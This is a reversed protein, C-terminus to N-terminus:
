SWFWWIKLETKSLHETKIPTKKEKQKTQKFVNRRRRGHWACRLKFLGRSPRSRARHGIEIIMHGLFLWPFAINLPFVVGVRVWRSALWCYVSLSDLKIFVGSSWWCGKRRWSRNRLLMGSMRFRGKRRGPKNVFVIRLAWLRRKRRWNNIFFVRVTRLLGQRRWSRNTFLMRLPRLCGKRRLSKIVFMKLRWLRGNGRWYKNILFMRMMRLWGKRRWSKEVILERLTWQYRKRWGSVSLAWFTIFETETWRSRERVCCAGFFM